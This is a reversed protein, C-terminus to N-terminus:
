FKNNLKVERISKDLFQVMTQHGQATLKLISRRADTQDTVRCLLGKSMLATIWRLATTTPVAAGVCASSISVQKGREGQIFLDLLLDWAPEGFLSEDFFNLRNRRLRYLKEAYELLNAPTASAPKTGLSASSERLQEALRHLRQAIDHIEESNAVRNV